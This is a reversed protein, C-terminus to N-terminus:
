TPFLSPAGKLTSCVTEDQEVIREEWTTDTPAQLVPISWSLYALWVVPRAFVSVGVTRDDRRKRMQGNRNMRREGNVERFALQVGM